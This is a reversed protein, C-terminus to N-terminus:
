LGINKKAEKLLKPALPLNKRFFGNPAKPSKNGVELQMIYYQQGRGETMVSASNSIIIADGYKGGNMAKRGKTVTKKASKDKDLHTGQAKGGDFEFGVPSQAKDKVGVVWAGTANGTDVPTDIAFKQLLNASFERHLALGNKKIITKIKGQLSNKARKTFGKDAM